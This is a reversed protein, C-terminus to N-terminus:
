PQEKSSKSPTEDYFVGEVESELVADTLNPDTRLGVGTMIQDGDEIKVYQDTHIIGDTNDWYLIESRLTKGATNRLIVNGRAVTDKTREDVVGNLATLEADQVGDRYFVMRVQTLHMSQDGPFKEASAGWLEWDLVGGTSQTTRYNSITQQAVAELPPAPEPSEPGCALLGLGIMPLVVATRIM